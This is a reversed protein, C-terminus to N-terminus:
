YLRLQGDKKEARERYHAAVMQRRCQDCLPEVMRTYRGCRVCPRFEMWRVLTETIKGCRECHQPGRAERLDRCEACTREFSLTEREEVSPTRVQRRVPSLPPRISPCNWITTEPM